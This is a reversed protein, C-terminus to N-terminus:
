PIVQIKILHNFQVLGSYIVHDDPHGSHCLNNRLPEKYSIQLVGSGLFLRFLNATEQFRCLTGYVSLALFLGQKNQMKRKNDALRWELFCGSSIPQKKSAAYPATFSVLM